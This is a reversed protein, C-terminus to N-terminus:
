CNELVWKCMYKDGYEYSFWDGNWKIYATDGMQLQLRSSIAYSDTKPGLGIKITKSSVLDNLAEVIDDDMQAVDNSAFKGVIADVFNKGMDKRYSSTKTHEAVSPWDIELKWDSGLKSKIQSECADVVGQKQKISRIEGLNFTGPYPPDAVVGDMDLVFKQIYTDGWAYSFWDCNWKCDIGGAGIGMELRSSISYSDSKPGGRLKLVKTACVKNITAVMDDQMPAIDSSIIKSVKESVIYKGAQKRYSDGQSHEGFSAFDVDLTWDTGLKSKLSSEAASLEGETSKIDKKEGLKWGSLNGLSAAM